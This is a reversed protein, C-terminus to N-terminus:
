AKELTELFDLVARHLTEIDHRADLIRHPIELAELAQRMRLQVELLYDVGRAEIGDPTKAALRRRLTEADTEFFLIGDPWDGRLAFRNLALLEQLTVGGNALAYGIGSLFGRDSLVLRRARQPLVVTEYHEARDALFLLLEARRSHLETELLIQRAKEGFPTGGPERTILAEPRLRRILEIQTSKGSTDIGEFLVYM